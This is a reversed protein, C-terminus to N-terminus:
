VLAENYTAVHITRQDAEAGYYLTIHMYGYRSFFASFRGGWEVFTIEQNLMTDRFLDYLDEAHVRYLDFHNVTGRVSPYRNHITFTPSKVQLASVGLCMCMGRILTTKGTGLEGDFLVITGAHVHTALARAIDALDNESEATYVDM